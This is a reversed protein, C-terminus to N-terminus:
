DAVNQQSANKDTDPSGSKDSNDDSKTVSKEKNTAAEKTSSADDLKTNQKKNVDIISFKLWNIILVMMKKKLQRCLMERADTVVDSPLHLSTHSYGKYCLQDRDSMKKISQLVADCLMKSESPMFSSPTNYGYGAFSSLTPEDFLRKGGLCIAHTKDNSRHWYEAVSEASKERPYIAGPIIQARYLEGMMDRKWQEIDEENIGLLRFSPMRMMRNGIRDLEQQWLNQPKHRLWKRYRKMGRSYHKVDRPTHYKWMRVIVKANM